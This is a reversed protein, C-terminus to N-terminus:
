EAFILSSHRITAYVLSEARTLSIAQGGWLWRFTRRCRALAIAERAGLSPVIRVTLSVFLGKNRGDAVFLGKNRGDAPFQAATEGVRDFKDTQESLLM